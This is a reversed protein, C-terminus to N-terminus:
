NNNNAFLNEVVLFICIVVTFTKFYTGVFAGTSFRQIYKYSSCLHNKQPSLQQYNTINEYDVDLLHNRSQKFVITM